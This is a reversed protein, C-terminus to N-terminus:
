IYFNKIKNLIRIEKLELIENGFTFIDGLLGVELVWYGLGIGIHSFGV